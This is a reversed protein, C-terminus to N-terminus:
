PIQLPPLNRIGMNRPLLGRELEDVLSSSGALDLSSLRLKLKGLFHIEIGYKSIQNRVRILDRICERGHGRCCLCPINKDCELKRPQLISRPRPYKLADLVALDFAFVAHWVPYM